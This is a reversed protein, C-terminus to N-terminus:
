MAGQRAADVSVHHVELITGTARELTAQARALATLLLSSLLRASHRM